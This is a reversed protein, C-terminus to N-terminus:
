RRAPQGCRLCTNNYSGIRSGCTVCAPNNNNEYFPMMQPLQYRRINQATPFTSGCLECYFAGAAGARSRHGCHGCYVQKEGRSAEQLFQGLYRYITGITLAYVYPSTRNANATLMGILMNRDNFVPNGGADAMQAITTPFWEQKIVSQTARRQGSMVQGSHAIAMLIANEPIVPNQEVPLLQSVQVGTYIFALDYAPYARIVRSPVNRGPELEVMVVEEGGVVHRTTAVIGDQTVFMGTGRGNPGNYVGVTRYAPTQQQYDPYPTAPTGGPPTSPNIYPQNPQTPGAGYAPTGGPPTGPNIIYPQNPQTPGAGYAPTGGPPTGPNTYPQNPQTPGAGYAPTGGPPTGPNSYPQSPQTQQNGYPPMGGPPTSSPPSAPPLNAALLRSKREAAHTNGPDASLAEDYYHLKRQPDNVTEALWLLTMARMAGQIQPSSLASKLMRAGEEM